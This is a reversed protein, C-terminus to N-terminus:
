TSDADQQGAPKLVHVSYPLVDYGSETANVRIPGSLFANVKQYSDGAVAELMKKKRFEETIPQPQEQSGRERGLEKRASSTRNASQLQESGDADEQTQRLRAAEAEELCVYLWGRLHNMVNTRVRLAQDARGLGRDHHFRVRGDLFHQDIFANDIEGLARLAGVAHEPKMGTAPLPHDEELYHNRNSCSQATEAVIETVVEAM